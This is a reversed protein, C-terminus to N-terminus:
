YRNIMYNSHSSGIRVRPKRSNQESDSYHQRRRIVHHDGSPSVMVEDVYPPRLNNYSEHSSHRKSTPRSYSSSTSSSHSDSRDYSGSRDHSIARGHVSRDHSGSREHGSPYDSSGSREYSANREHNVGNSYMRDDSTQRQCRCCLANDSASKQQQQLHKLGARTALIRKEPSTEIVYEDPLNDVIYTIAEEINQNKLSSVEIYAVRHIRALLRGERHSVHRTQQLDCKTGILLSSARPNIEDLLRQAAEFSSRNTVDYVVGVSHAKQACILATKTDAGEVDWFQVVVERRHRTHYVSQTQRVIKQKQPVYGEYFEFDIFRRLISTTGVRRDGVLLIKAPVVGRGSKSSTVSSTSM